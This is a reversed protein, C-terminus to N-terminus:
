LPNIGVAFYTEDGLKKEFIQGGLNSVEEIVEKETTKIGKGKLVSILYSIYVHSSINKSYNYMNKLRIALDNEIVVNKKKVEPTIVKEKSITNNLALDLISSNLKEYEKKITLLEEDKLKVLEQTMKLEDKILLLQAESCHLSEETLKLNKQLNNNDHSKSINFLVSKITKIMDKVDGSFYENGYEKKHIFTKKFSNIVQKESSVCDDVLVFLIIESGSPYQSFRVFPKQQTRGIKYTPEDCRIFERKRILYIYDREINTYDVITKM